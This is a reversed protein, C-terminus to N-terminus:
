KMKRWSNGRAAAPEAALLVKYKAADLKKWWDPDTAFPV